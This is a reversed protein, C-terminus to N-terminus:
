DAAAPRRRLPVTADAHPRANGSVLGHRTRYDQLTFIEGAPLTDREGNRKKNHHGYEYLYDGLHLNYDQSDKRAANGYANFYGKPFNSCSFVAFQIKSVDDDPRPATKTRGVNSRVDSDCVNFQYYYETFPKLGGAEVKVTFDIDSSTYAKDTAIINSHKNDTAPDNKYVTWEVCIPNHDPTVWRSNDHDYLGVVSGEVTANSNSSETSPAVRTWLIVSEPWPDGSAIGHTFKLDTPKLDVNGRKWSRREVHPVDIGLFEHRRSPSAYNINGDFRAEASAALLGLVSILGPIM